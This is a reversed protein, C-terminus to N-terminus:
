KLVLYLGCLLVISGLGIYLNQDIQNTPLVKQEAKIASITQQVLGSKARLSTIVDRCNRTAFIGEYTNKKFELQNMYAKQELDPFMNNRREELIKESVRKIDKDLGVCNFPLAGFENQVKIIAAQLAKNTPSNDYYTIGM